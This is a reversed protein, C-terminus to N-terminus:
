FLALEFYKAGELPNFRYSDCEQFGLSRYLTIAETMSAITDLRMIRYGRMKAETIIEEALRRGIGLGRFQPKVYLRKMECTNEGFKRLAVCGIPDNNSYALLLQGAPPAYESPLNALETDYDQFCLNFGLSEGYEIFLARAQEIQKTSAATDITIMM